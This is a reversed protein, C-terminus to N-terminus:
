APLGARDLGSREALWLWTLRVRQTPPPFAGEAQGGLTRGKSSLRLRTKLKMLEKLIILESLARVGVGGLALPCARQWADYTSAVLHLGDVWVRWWLRALVKAHDAPGASAPLHGIASGAARELSARPEDDHHQAPQPHAHRVADGRVQLQRLAYEALRSVAHCDLVLNLAVEVQFLQRPNNSCNHRLLCALLCPVDLLIQASLPAQPRPQHLLRPWRIM